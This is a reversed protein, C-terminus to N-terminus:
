VLRYEYRVNEKLKKNSTFVEHLKSRLIHASTGLDKDSKKKQSRFSIDSCRIPIIKLYNSIIVSTYFVLLFHNM